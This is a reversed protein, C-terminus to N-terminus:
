LYMAVVEAVVSGALLPLALLARLGLAHADASALAPHEVASDVGVQAVGTRAALGIAGMADVPWACGDGADLRGRIECFGFGRRLRSGDDSPLWSEIRRAIPTGPSSLLSVIWTKDDRARCPLSLARVIGASAATQARLFESSGEVHDIFVAADRQWALGPAGSGRPLWADRSLPELSAASGAFYGSELRLDSTVRPDNQWLEVAGVEAPEGSCLLVAVSTLRDGAFVPLGLACAIGAQRAAAARVFFSADLPHLLLPRGEDWVHGPLGEARGFCMRQTLAGFAPAAHYIGGGPELLSGDASPLWVEAIRVFSQM